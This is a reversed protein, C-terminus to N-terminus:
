RLQNLPSESFVSYLTNRLRWLGATRDPVVGLHQFIPPSGYPLPPSRKSRFIELGLGDGSAIYSSSVPTHPQDSKPSRAVWEGPGVVGLTREWPHNALPLNQPLPSAICEDIIPAHPEDLKESLAGMEAWCFRGRRPRAPSQSYTTRAQRM